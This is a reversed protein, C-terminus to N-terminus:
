RLGYLGNALSRAGLFATVRTVRHHIKELVSEPFDADGILDNDSNSSTSSTGTLSKDSDNTTSSGSSSTSSSTSSAKTSNGAIGPSQQSQSQSQPTTATVAKPTQKLAAMLASSANGNSSGATAATATSATITSVVPKASSPLSIPNKGSSMVTLSTSSSGKGMVTMSAGGVSSSNGALSPAGSLLILLQTVVDAPVSITELSAVDGIGDPLQEAHSNVRQSALSISSVLRNVTSDSQSRGGQGRGGGGRGRGSGGSTEEDRGRGGRGGGKGGGGGRGKVPPAWNSFRARAPAQSPPKNRAGGRSNPGM